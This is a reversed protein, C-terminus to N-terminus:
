SFIARCLDKVLDKIKDKTKFWGLFYKVVINKREYCASHFIGEQNSSLFTPM